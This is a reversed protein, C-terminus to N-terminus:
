REVEAPSPSAGIVGITTWFSAAADDPVLGFLARRLADAHAPRATAVADHGARTACVLRGLGEATRSVLGRGEMRTLLRSLRSRQWDLLEAIANQRLEGGGEVVRSLVAFESASLGAAAAVDHAVSEWVRDTARKWATWRAMEDTDLLAEVARV